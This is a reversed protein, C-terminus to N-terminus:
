GLLTESSSFFSGPRNFLNTLSRSCKGEYQHLDAHDSKAATMGAQVISEDGQVFGVFHLGHLNRLVARWLVVLFIPIIYM